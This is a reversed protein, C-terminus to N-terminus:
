RGNIESEEVIPDGAPPALHVSTEQKIEKVMQEMSEVAEQETGYIAPTSVLLRPRKCGSPSEDMMWATGVYKGTDKDKGACATIENGKILLVTLLGLGM